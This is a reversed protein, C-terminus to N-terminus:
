AARKTADRRHPQHQTQQVAAVIREVALTLVLDAHRKTLGADARRLADVAEGVLAAARARIYGRAQARPMEAAAKRTTSRVINTFREVLRDAYHKTRRPNRLNRIWGFLSM